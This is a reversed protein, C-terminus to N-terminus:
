GTSQAHPDAGVLRMRVVDAAAGAALSLVAEAPTLFLTYGSGRSLFDVQADTQGQNAEFTLPLRGYAEGVRVQTAADPQGSPVAPPLSSPCSRDELAELRLVRRVPKRNRTM